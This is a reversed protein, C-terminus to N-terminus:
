STACFQVVSDFNAGWLLQVTCNSVVGVLGRAWDYLIRCTEWVEAMHDKFRKKKGKMVETLASKWQQTIKVQTGVNLERAQIIYLCHM